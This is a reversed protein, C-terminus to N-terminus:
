PIRRRPAVAGREERANQIAELLRERMIFFQARQVPTLYNMEKLEDRYTQVQQVKLGLLRDTLRAVSDQDAAVGPRMQEALAQKLQREERELSRRTIFWKAVTRRMQEEQQDSLGLQQQVQRAFREQIMSRLSDERSLPAFAGPPPERRQALLSHPLLIVLLTIVLRRTM